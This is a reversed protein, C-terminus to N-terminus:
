KEEKFLFFADEEDGEPRIIIIEAGAKMLLDKIKELDLSSVASFSPLLEAKFKNRIEGDGNCLEITIEETPCKMSPKLVLTGNQSILSTVPLLFYYKLLEDGERSPLTEPSILEHEQAKDYAGKIGLYLERGEQKMESIREPFAFCFVTGLRYLTEEESKALAESMENLSKGEIINIFILELGCLYPISKENQYTKDAERLLEVFKMRGDQQDAPYKKLIEGIIVKYKEELEMKRDGEQKQIIEKVMKDAANKFRKEVQSKSFGLFILGAWKWRHVMEDNVDEFRESLWLALAEYRNIKPCDLGFHKRITWYVKPEVKKLLEMKELHNRWVNLIFSEQKEQSLRKKVKSSKRGSKM